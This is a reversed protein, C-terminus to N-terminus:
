NWNCLLVIGRTINASGLFASCLSEKEKNQGEYKRRKEM